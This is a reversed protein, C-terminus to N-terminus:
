FLSETLDKLVDFNEKQEVPEEDESVIKVRFESKETRQSEDQKSEQKSSKLIKKLEKENLSKSSVKKTKPSKSQTINKTYLREFVSEGLKQARTSKPIDPTFSYLQIKSREEQLKKRKEIEKEMRQEFPIMNRTLEHSKENVKPQFTSDELEEKAKAERERNQVETKIEKWKNMYNYYEETTRKKGPSECTKPKFTLEKNEEALKKTNTQQILEEIRKNKDELVEQVRSYIPTSKGIIKKSNNNITPAYPFNGVKEKERSEKAKKLSEEHRKQYAHMRALTTKEFATKSMAGSQPQTKEKSVTPKPKKPQNKSKLIPSEKRHSLPSEATTESAGDELMIRRIKDVVSRVDETAFEQTDM